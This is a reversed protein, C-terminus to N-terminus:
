IISYQIKQLIDHDSIHEGWGLDVKASDSVGFDVKASMCSFLEDVIAECCADVVYRENIYM